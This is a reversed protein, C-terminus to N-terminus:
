LLKELRENKDYLKQGKSKLIYPRVRHHVFLREEDNNKGVLSSTETWEGDVKTEFGLFSLFDNEDIDDIYYKMTIYKWGKQIALLSLHYLLSLEYGDVTSFLDDICVYKGRIDYVNEYDYKDDVIYGKLFAIDINDDNKYVDDSDKVFDWVRVYGDEKFVDDITLLFTNDAFRKYGVTPLVIYNEDM